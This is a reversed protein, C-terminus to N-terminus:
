KKLRGLCTRYHQAVEAHETNGPNKRADSLWAQFEIYSVDDRGTTGSAEARCHMEASSEPSKSFAIYIVGAAFSLVLVAAALFLGKM